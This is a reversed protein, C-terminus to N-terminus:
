FKLHKVAKYNETPFTSLEADSGIDWIWLNIVSESESGLEDIIDSGAPYSDM